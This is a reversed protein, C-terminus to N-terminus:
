IRKILFDLIDAKVEDRVLENVLEHRAERYIRLTVDCGRSRYLEAARRVGSGYGGVPDMGGSMFLMPVDTRTNAIVLDSNSTVMANVLDRYGAVTFTFACKPDARFKDVEKDDRTLWDSPTRYNETRLNFVKLALTKGFYYKWRDGKLRTMHHLHRQLLAGGALPGGSGLLIMANWRDEPYKSFYIRALFSGMSHGVLFHPIDPFAHEMVKKMRHLDQAMRMTGHEHGFYGLEIEDSLSNGHGMHDNGCLAIDSECLFEALGKYREIYECMGHSLMVAAKPKEPTYIYYSCDCLGSSSKFSGTLKKM